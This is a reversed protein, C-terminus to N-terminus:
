PTPWRGGIGQSKRMNLNVFVLKMIPVNTPHLNKYNGVDTDGVVKLEEIAKDEIARCSMVSIKDKINWKIGNQHYHVSQCFHNKEKLIDIILM